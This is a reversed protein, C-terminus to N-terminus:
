SEGIFRTMEDTRWKTTGDHTERRGEVSVSWGVRVGAAAEPM